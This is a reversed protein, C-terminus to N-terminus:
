ELSDDERIKAYEDEWGDLNELIIQSQRHRIRRTEDALLQNSMRRYYKVNNVSSHGLLKAITWDDLHMETLKVGYTHRYMHTGFGFPEGNDDLLNKERLMNVVQNQLTSYRLAQRPENADVFIYTTEGYRERTYSIAKRILAALEESIPKEYTKTKMQRIRIITVGDKEYLCNPELTLTDSIRTGLMQHIIMLRAVQEDMEVLAANLRKLEGDSYAKFEAKPTPPIDRPLFLCELNHYECIKGISDLLARLRNLDAHFHKTETAETKLYILYEELLKRDIEKCSSVKPYQKHLYASFRRIATLEKQVCAIAETQLNLYIGKKVEERIEPQLIKTFILTKCTKIPNFRIPIDLKELKWIDKEQEPRIDEPALFELLKELYVIERAKARHESGYPSFSYEVLPLKEQFMWGKLQRIWTDPEKDRLSKARGSHAQLFRCLKNFLQRDSYVRAIGVQTSRYIIFAAIEKRMVPSPIQEMDYYPNKSISAPYSDKQNQYAPLEKLYIRDSM